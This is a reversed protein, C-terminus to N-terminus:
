YPGQWVGGRSLCVSIFPNNSIGNSSSSLPHLFDCISCSNGFTKWVSLWRRFCVQSICYGFSFLFSEASFATSPFNIWFLNQFLALEHCLRTQENTRTYINWRAWIWYISIGAINAWNIVHDGSKHHYASPILNSIPFGWFSQWAEASFLKCLM